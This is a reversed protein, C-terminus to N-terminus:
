SPMQRPRAARARARSTRVLARLDQAIRVRDFREPDFNDDVWERFRTHEAHNPDALAEIMTEYGPPGGCDEPPCARAGDVLAPLEHGTPRLYVQEIVVDHKWGDGFDYEYVFREAKRVARALSITRDDALGLESEPTGYKVGGIDFSHLHSNTWGMAVQIVDHLKALRIDGPVLVRRWIAPAISRLTIELQFTPPPTAHMRGM